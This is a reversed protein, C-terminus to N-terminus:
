QSSRDAHHILGPAPRRMTLAKRLTGLAASRVAEDEFEETFRGQRTM